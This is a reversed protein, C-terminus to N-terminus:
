CNLFNRNKPMVVQHHCPNLTSVHLLHSILLRTTHSQIHKSQKSQNYVLPSTHFLFFKVHMNVFTKWCRNNNGTLHLNEMKKYVFSALANHFWQCIKISCPIAYIVVGINGTRSVWVETILAIAAGSWLLDRLLSACVQRKYLNNAFSVHIVCLSMRLYGVSNGKYYVFLVLCTINCIQQGGWEVSKNDDNIM